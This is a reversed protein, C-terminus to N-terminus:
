DQFNYKKDFEEESIYENKEIINLIEEEDDPELVLHLKEKVGQKSKLYQTMGERVVQAISKNEVFSVARIKKYVDPEMQLTVRKMVM